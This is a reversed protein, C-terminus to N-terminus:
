DDLLSLVAAGPRRKETFKSCFTNHTPNGTLRSEEAATGPVAATVATLAAAAGARVYTKGM